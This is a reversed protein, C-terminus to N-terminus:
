QLTAKTPDRTGPRKMEAAIDWSQEGTAMFQAAKDQWAQGSPAVPQLNVKRFSYNVTEEQEKNPIQLTYTCVNMM